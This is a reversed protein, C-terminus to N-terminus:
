NQKENKERTKDMGKKKENKGKGKKGKKNKNRMRCFAIMDASEMSRISFISSISERGFDFSIKFAAKVLLIKGTGPFFPSVM